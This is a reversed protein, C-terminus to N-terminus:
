GLCPPGAEDALPTVFVSAALRRDLGIRSGAACVVMRSGARVTHIPRGECVGMAQMRAVEEADVAVRSVVAPTRVPLRDLTILGSESRDLTQNLNMRLIMRSRAVSTLSRM